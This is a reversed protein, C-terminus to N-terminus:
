KKVEKSKKLIRDAEIYYIIMLILFVFWDIGYLIVAIDLERVIAQICGFGCVICFLCCLVGQMEEKM